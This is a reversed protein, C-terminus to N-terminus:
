ESEEVLEYVKKIGQRAPISAGGNLFASFRQVGAQIAEGLAMGAGQKVIGTLNAPRGGLLGGLTGKVFKDRIATVVEDSALAQLVIGPLRRKFWWLYILPALVLDAVFGASFGAFFTWLDM